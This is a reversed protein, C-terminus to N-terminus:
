ESAFGLILCYTSAPLSYPKVARMIRTVRIIRTAASRSARHYLLIHCNAQGPLRQTLGLDQGCPTTRRDTAQEGLLDFNQDPFLFGVLASLTLSRSQEVLSKMQAAYNAGAPVLPM